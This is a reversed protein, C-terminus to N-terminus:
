GLGEIRLLFAKKGKHRERIAALRRAFDVTKGHENAIIGLDSLMEAALNYGSANRREIETEVEQWVVEGRRILGDLRARQERKAKEQALRRQEAKRRAEMQEREAGIAEARALLDAVTRPAAHPVQPLGARVKARLEAAVLPDGDFLRLLLKNKASSDMAAIAAEASGAPIPDFATREAATAVLDPDIGFFSAFAELAGTLPGIGPLPEPEDPEIGEEEVAMLWLLYFLRTDGALLDSRLPALSALSGSDDVEYGGDELQREIALIVKEGATEISIGDIANGVHDLLRRDVVHAPLRIMLHRSGWNALYLHLDFWQRMLKLPDGRFDGWNYENVFSTATIRARSSLARLADQDERTLPRDIAQFEYYQYESM